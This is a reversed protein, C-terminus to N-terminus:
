AYAKKRKPNNLWDVEIHERLNKGVTNIIQKDIRQQTVVRCYGGPIRKLCRIGSLGSLHSLMCAPLARASRSVIVKVKATKGNSVPTINSVFYQQAQGLSLGTREHAPQQAVPYDAHILVPAYADMLDICVTANGDQDIHDVTGTVIKGRLHNIQRAEILTQRCMLELEIEQLLARKAGRRIDGLRLQKQQEGNLLTILLGAAPDIIATASCGTVSQLARVTAVEIGDLLEEEPLAGYKAFVETPLQSFM